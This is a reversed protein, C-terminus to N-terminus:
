ECLIIQQSCFSTVINLSFYCFAYPDRENFKPVLRLNGIVDVGSPASGAPASVETNSGGLTSGRM